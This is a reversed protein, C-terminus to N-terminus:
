LTSPGRTLGWVNSKFSRLQTTRLPLFVHAMPQTQQSTVNRCSSYNGAPHWTDELGFRPPSSLRSSYSTILPIHDLLVAHLIGQTRGPMSTKDQHPKALTRYVQSLEFVLSHSMTHSLRMFLLRSSAPLGQIPVTCPLPGALSVNLSM